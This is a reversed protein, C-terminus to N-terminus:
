VIIEHGTQFKFTLRRTVVEMESLLTAIESDPSGTDTLATQMAHCVDLLSQFVDRNDKTGTFAEDTYVGRDLWDAHTQILASHYSVQASLSHLM